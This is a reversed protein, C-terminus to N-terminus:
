VAFLAMVTVISLDSVSAQDIVATHFKSRKGSDV